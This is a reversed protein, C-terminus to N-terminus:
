GSPEKGRLASAVAAALSLSIAVLFVLGLGHHFPESMVRPFFEPGLLASRDKPSLRSLLEPGLLEELPNEGLFAAFLSSAPPAQAIEAAESASLGYQILGEELAQPLKGAVGAILLSFFIGQSLVMGANMLTARVGNAAGRETAPVSGMIASTNPAAFLGSGIGNVALLLAMKQYSFITPLLLLGLFSVATLILGLSALERVGYKDSLFGAIPGAAMFGATLPLMYIAAILPADDFHIGHLPLWIGQLWIVLVLQLGGRALTFLFLSINSASFQRIRFLSLDLMPERVRGEVFLFLILLAVGGLLTALLWPQTWSTLGGGEGPQIGYSTALLIAGLGIAFLLNGIWDIRAETREGIERLQLYSWISGFVGFPASVWFIARWSWPSLFGGILLGVFSGGLAAVQNLGLATGRQHSPFADTLLATSNAMLLAGGIGQVIRFVIISIAAAEGEFPISALLISGATFVVFGWRYLRVRGHIDGLRGFTVVFITTVFLYGLLTWLLYAVNGPALPDLRIGRFIEPLSIIVVSSNLTAMLVGLTTNSLAIWKYHRPVPGGPGSRRLFARWM